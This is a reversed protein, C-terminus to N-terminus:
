ASRNVRDSRVRYGILLERLCEPSHQSSGRHKGHRAKRCTQGKTLHRIRKQEGARTDLWLPQHVGAEAETKWVQLRCQDMSYLLGFFKSNRSKITSALNSAFIFCM